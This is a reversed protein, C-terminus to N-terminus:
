ASVDRKTFITFAIFMFVIFYIVLMAISFPMTMGDLLPRGELYQMLDTNAFLIYKAWEFKSAILNTITTGMLLLFISIGIALGSTRFAASIMFAMTALLLTSASNLAYVKMLYLLLSQEIVQGNEITLHIASTDGGIGFFLAGILATSAFLIALMLILFLVVTIYKSLLIKWRKFPKILLMKVTGWTFENAVIGAAIIIVFLGVFDITGASDSIFSWMNNETNPQLNNEIRYENIAIESELFQKYYGSPAFDSELDVKLQDTQEQLNEKWDGSSPEEMSDIWNFLIAAVCTLGVVLAIMIYTSIRTFIKIWENQILKLM